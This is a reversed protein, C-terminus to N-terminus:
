VTSALAARRSLTRASVFAGFPLMAAILLKIMEGRSWGGAAVMRVLMWLYTLFALGHIPGIARVADPFDAFHKLPVAVFLLLILTGGEVLCAIRMRLMQRRDEMDSGVDTEPAMM